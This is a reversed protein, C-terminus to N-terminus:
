FWWSRTNKSSWILERTREEKEVHELRKEVKALKEGFGKSNVEKEFFNLSIQSDPKIHNEVDILIIGDHDLKKLYRPNGTIDRGMSLTVSKTSSKIMERILKWAAVAYKQSEYEPGDFNPILGITNILWTREEDELQSAAQGQHSHPPPRQGGQFHSKKQKEYNADDLATEASKDILPNTPVPYPDWVGAANTDENYFRKQQQIFNIKFSNNISTFFLNKKSNIKNDISFNSDILSFKM